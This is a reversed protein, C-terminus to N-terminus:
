HNRFAHILNFVAITIAPTLLVMGIAAMIFAQAHIGPELICDDPKGPRYYVTVNKGAPYRSVIEKAHSSESSDYGGFAVKQGTLEVGDVNYSYVVRGHYSIGDQIHSTVGSATIIGDAQPWNKSKWSLIIINLGFGMCILGAITWLGIFIAEGYDM